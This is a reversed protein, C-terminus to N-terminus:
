VIANAASAIRPWLDACEKGIPGTIASGKMEGKPNVIVGANDAPTVADIDCLHYLLAIRSGEFYMYVGDKRRWPKRQRVIVAPMVKKRLDPKGKKVTAMVMDGVCASPLRNLRGKIGKVSIIYLNKAGTNDACNVTAAVPLGLSMRFKNGASGGRGRKSMKTKSISILTKRPIYLRATSSIVFPALTKTRRYLKSRFIPDHSHIIAVAIAFSQLTSLNPEFRIYFLDDRINAIKMAPVNQKSGQIFLNITKCDGSVDDAQSLNESSNQRTNLITIPCGIDWGGCDCQGGSAWRDLLSTPGGNRTRPGGHFGAPVIVDTSTSCEISSCCPNGPRISTELRSNKQGVMTKKLFKLGWGGGIESKKHSNHLHSKVVIAALEFNTILENGTQNAGGLARNNWTDLSPPWSSEELIANTGDFKSPKRQKYSQGSRLVDAMKKPLKKNKRQIHSPIQTDDDTCDDGSGYLVFVTEMIESENLSLTFSTSVTMKGVFDPQTVCIDREIKSASRSRFTYVYDLRKDGASNVKLLDAVYVESKVDNSLVLRPLGNKWTIKLMGQTIISAVSFSQDSCTSNTTSMSYHKRHVPKSGFGPFGVTTDSPLKLVSQSSSTSFGGPSSMGDSYMSEKFDLSRIKGSNVVNYDLTGSKNLLPSKLINMMSKSGTIAGLIWNETSKPAVNEGGAAALPFEVVLDTKKSMRSNSVQRSGLRDSLIGMEPSLNCSAVSSACANLHEFCSLFYREEFGIIHKALKNDLGHSNNLFRRQDFSRFAGPSLVVLHKSRKSLRNDEASQFNENMFRFSCERAQDDEDMTRREM